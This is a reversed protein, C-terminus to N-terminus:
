LFSGGPPVVWLRDARALLAREGLGGVNAAGDRRMVEALGEWAAAVSAVRQTPGFGAAGRLERARAEVENVTMEAFPKYAEGDYVQEALVRGLREGASGGDAPGSM